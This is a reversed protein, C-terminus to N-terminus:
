ESWPFRLSLDVTGDASDNDVVVIQFDRYTQHLPILALHYSCRATATVIIIASKPQSVTKRFKFNLIFM